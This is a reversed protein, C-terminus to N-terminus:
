ESPMVPFDWESCALAAVGEAEDIQYRSGYPMTRQAWERLAAADVNTVLWVEGFPAFTNGVFYLEPDIAPDAVVACIQSFTAGKWELAGTFLWCSEDDYGPGTREGVLSEAKLLRLVASPDPPAVCRMLHALADIPDSAGAGTAGLFALCLALLIPLRPRVAAM